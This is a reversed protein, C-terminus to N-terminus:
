IKVADAFDAVISLPMLGFLCPSRRRILRCAGGRRTARELGGDFLADADAVSCRAPMDHCRLVDFAMSYLRLAAVDM